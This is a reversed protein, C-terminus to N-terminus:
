KIKRVLGLYLLKFYLSLLNHNDFYKLVFFSILNKSLFNHSFNLEFNIDFYRPNLIMGISLIKSAKLKIEIDNIEVNELPRLFDVKEDAGSAFIDVHMHVYLFVKSVTKKSELYKRASM